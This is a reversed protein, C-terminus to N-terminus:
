RQRRHVHHTGDTDIIVLNNGHIRFRNVRRPRSDDTWTAIHEEDVLAWKGRITSKASKAYYRGDDGFVIQLAAAQNVLVWHGVLGANPGPIAQPTSEPPAEPTAEAGVAPRLAFLLLAVLLIRGTM